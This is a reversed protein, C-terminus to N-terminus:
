VCATYMYMRTYWVCVCVKSYEGFEVLSFNEKAILFNLQKMFSKDQAKKQQKVRRDGMKKSLKSFVGFARVHMAVHTVCIHTHQHLRHPTHTHTHPTHTHTHPTHTHTRTNSHVHLLSIACSQPVSTSHHIYHPSFRAHSLTHHTYSHTLTHLYRASHINHRAIHTHTFPAHLHTLSVAFLPYLPATARSRTQSVVSASPSSLSLSLILSLSRRTFSM